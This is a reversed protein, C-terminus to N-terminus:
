RRGIVRLTSSSFPTMGRPTIEASSRLSPGKALNAEILKRAVNRATELTETITSGQVVLLHVFREM